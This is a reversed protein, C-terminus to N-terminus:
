GGSVRKVELTETGKNQILFDHLVAAGDFVDRFTYNPEPSFVSAKDKATKEAGVSVVMAILLFLTCLAGALPRKWVKM